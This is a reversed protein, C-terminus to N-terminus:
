SLRFRMVERRAELTRASWKIGLLYLTLYLVLIGLIKWIAQYSESNLLYVAVIGPLIGFIVGGLADVPSGGSAFRYFQMKFPEHVSMWNGWTLYALGTIVLILFGVLAASVGLRWFALPVIALFLVIAVLAFSLNKSLLLERGSLPLLSYRDLGSPNELGFGNFALSICPLLLLNVVVWFVARSPAQNSALYINFLIVIPVALYLDLLRSSYRLDKRLLGGFRGPFRILGFVTFRQSRRTEVSHLGARFTLFSLIFASSSMFALAALSSWPQSSVAVNAALKNPVWPAFYSALQVPMSGKAFWYLGLAVSVAIAAGGLFKRVLANTLVHTIVLSISLAFLVFLLLAFMGALLNPSKAIAFSLALSGLGIIWSVPSIFISAVRILYLDLESLPLHLLSRTPISRRSEGLPPLMWLLFLVGLLMQYRATRGNTLQAAVLPLQQFYKVAGFSGLLVLLGVNNRSFHDARRIRRWYARWQLRLISKIRDM